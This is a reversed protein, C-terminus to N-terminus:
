VTPEPQCAIDHLLVHSGEATTAIGAAKALDMIGGIFLPYALPALRKAGCWTKYSNWTQLVTLTAGPKASLCELAFASVNYGVGTVPNAPELSVAKRGFVYEMVDM